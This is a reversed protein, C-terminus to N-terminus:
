KKMKLPYIMVTDNEIKYSMPTTIALLGLLERLSETRVTFTYNESYKLSKDLIISVGYWREMKTVVENFPSNDFRMMEDKWSTYLMTNVRINQMEGKNTNIINQEGPNLMTLTKGTKNFLQVSGEELTTYVKQDAEYACVDFKTGLVKVDVHKTQVLFPHRSDKVVEFYGEGNLKVKREGSFNAPYKLQSGGNLYGKTGDPLTFQVRSGQPAIIEAFTEKKNINQTTLYIGGILLPILLVAAIRYYVTLIQKRFVPKASSTNIHFHIQNLVHQLEVESTPSKEWHQRAIENLDSENTKNLYMTAVFDVDDSSSNFYQHLRNKDSIEM